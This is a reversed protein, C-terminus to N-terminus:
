ITSLSLLKVDRASPTLGKQVIIITSTITKDTMEKCYEKMEKLGLKELDILKASLMNTPDDNHAVLLDLHSRRPKGESFSIKTM